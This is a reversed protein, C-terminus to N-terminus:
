TPAWPPTLPGSSTGEWPAQSPPSVLSAAQPVCPGLLGPQDPPLTVQAMEPPSHAPGVLGEEGAEEGAGPVVVAHVFEAM